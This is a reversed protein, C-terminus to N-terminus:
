YHHATQSRKEDDLDDFTEDWIREAVIEAKTKPRVIEEYGRYGCIFCRWCHADFDWYLGVTVGDAGAKCHPCASAHGNEKWNSKTTRRM